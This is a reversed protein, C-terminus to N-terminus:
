FCAHTHREAHKSHLTESGQSQTFGNAHPGTLPAFSCRLLSTALQQWSPQLTLGGIKLPEDVWVLM